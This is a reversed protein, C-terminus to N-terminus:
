EKAQRGGRAAKLVYAKTAGAYIGTGAFDCLTTATKRLAGRLRVGVTIPQQRQAPDAVHLTVGGGDTRRVMVICPRDVAVRIDRDRYEGPEHFVMQWIGLDRQRVAQLSPTNALIAVHRGRAYDALRAREACPVVIYAYTADRPNTGHDIALGFVRNQVTRGSQTRNIDHWTGRRTQETACVSGGNPFVYGVNDYEIATVRDSAVSDKECATTGDAYTALICPKPGALCQNVSTMVRNGNGGSIGAGLCVVEDDFFFWAKKAHIDLGDWADDYAYATAGYLSDSVGGAFESTGPQQWDSQAMPIRGVQPATTGPILTWNWTPFIDYYEDGRKVLANCGDSAFYTRLNEGNGYELRSTRTSVMRVDFVYGPRVHLTYDARYYHTHRPAVAYSAPQRREMRDVIQGFEAAHGPDLRMMRKAFLAKQSKDLTGERSVSRGMVDYLMYPGRMTQYYTDRMFRSLLQVKDATLAYKTGMAYMAVQTVGKLIEDGYGGIYLQTGHQFYSGDHQFGEKTTYRIPDFVLRMAKELDQENRELCSRYIWHLCIDTRNAGTWRAPDGGQARMRGLIAKELAAPVQRKGQRMLVLAVGLAQPEAIQNYWWNNCNPDVAQWYELAKVIRAYLADDAYHANHPNTYAAAWQRVRDVHKQPPWNTRDDRRYDIDGFSGDAANYHAFTSDIDPNARFDDGIRQMLVAFDDTQAQAITRAVLLLLCIAAMRLWYNTKPNM